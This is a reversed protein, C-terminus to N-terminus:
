TCICTVLNASPQSKFHGTHRPIIYNFTRQVVGPGPGLGLGENASINIAYVKHADWLRNVNGLEINVNGLM